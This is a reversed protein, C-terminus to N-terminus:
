EEPAEKLNALLEPVDRSEALQRAGVAAELSLGLEQRLKAAITGEAKEVKADAQIVRWVLSMLAVRQDHSFSEKIATLLKARSAVEKKLFAAVTLLHGVESENLGFQLTGTASIRSLESPNMGDAGSEAVELLVVAVAIQLQLPTREGTPLRDLITAVDPTMTRM